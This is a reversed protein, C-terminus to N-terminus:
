GQGIRVENVVNGQADYYVMKQYSRDETFYMEVRQVDGQNTEWVAMCVQRGEHEVMGQVNWSVQEGTQPDRFEMSASEGCWDGSGGAVSGDSSGDGAASGDSGGAADGGSLQVEGVVNGEADYTIMKRYSEDESFLMDIRRVDGQNTEWTVRCVRRDDETVVGRVEWSAREGTQPNTMQVTQGAGCWDSSPGGDGADAATEGGGDATAGAPGGDAGSCGALVLLAVVLVLRVRDLTM